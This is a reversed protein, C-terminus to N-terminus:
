LQTMELSCARENSSYGDITSCGKVYQDFWDTVRASHVTSSEDVGNNSAQPWPNFLQRAEHTKLTDPPVKFRSRALIQWTSEVDVRYECKLDM